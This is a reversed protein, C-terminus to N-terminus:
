EDAFRGQRASNGSSIIVWAILAIFSVAGFSSFLAVATIDSKFYLFGAYLGAVKISTSVVQYILYGRQMGMPITAVSSPGAIFQFFIMFAIWRAYEGAMIWESGFVLKFIWPGLIVVMGYPIIGAALLGLTANIILSKFDKGERAAKTIKPYFVSSVSKGILRTPAKLLKVGLIYFGGSVPGFFASLMLVPLSASFIEIFEVPARYLPFDYYKRAVQSLSVATRKQPQEPKRKEKKTKRSSVHMLFAQMGIGLTSIIILVAAVPKILGIVTKAINLIFSKLVVIRATTKFRKKRILWQAGVKRWSAFLMYLPILMGFATITQAGFFTFLRDGALLIVLAALSTTTISIYVAVRAIDKAESDKKPLVIAAPYAFASVSAAITAMSEFTGMLGFAEPGYIRTIVPTFVVGVLQGMATGSAVIIVNRVFKSQTLKKINNAM